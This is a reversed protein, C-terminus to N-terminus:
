GVYQFSLCISFIEFFITKSYDNIYQFIKILMQKVQDFTPCNQGLYASTSWFKETFWHDNLYWKLYSQFKWWIVVSIQCWFTPSQEIQLGIFYIVFKFSWAQMSTRLKLVKEKIIFHWNQLCIEFCSLIIQRLM